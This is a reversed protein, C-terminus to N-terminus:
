VKESIDNFVDKIVEGSKSLVRVLVGKLVETVGFEINNVSSLKMYIDDKVSTTNERCIFLTGQHTYGEYGGIGTVKHKEPEISVNDIFVLKDEYYIEVRSRYNRFLFEEGMAVRGCCLIDSYILAAGKKLYIKSSNIFSSNKYLTVPLPMYKLRAGEELAATMEQTARGNEMKFVKTYSQGTIHVSSGKGINFNLSYNDNELIGPSSSMVYVIMEDEEYFPRTIKFPVTFYPNIIITKGNKLETDFSLKGCVGKM